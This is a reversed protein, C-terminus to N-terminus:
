RRPSLGRAVTFFRRGERLALAQGEGRTQSATAAALGSGGGFGAQGEGRTQSASRM